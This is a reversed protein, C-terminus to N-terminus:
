EDVEEEWSRHRDDYISPSNIELITDFVLALARYLDENIEARKKPGVGLQYVVLYSDRWPDQKSDRIRGKAVGLVSVDNKLNTSLIFEATDPLSSPRTILPNGGESPLQNDQRVVLLNLFPLDHLTQLNVSMEECERDIVDKIASWEGTTLERKLGKHYNTREM